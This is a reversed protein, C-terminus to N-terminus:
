NTMAQTNPTNAISVGNVLRPATNTSFSIYCREMFAMGSIIDMGSGSNAGIDGVILYVYDPSGGILTNLNRQTTPWRHSDHPVM